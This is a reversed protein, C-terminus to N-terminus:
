AAIMIANTASFDPHTDDLHPGWLADSVADAGCRRGEIGLDRCRGGAALWEAV